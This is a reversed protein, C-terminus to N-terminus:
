AYEVASPLASQCYSVARSNSVTFPTLAFPPVILAAPGTTAPPMSNTGDPYESSPFPM